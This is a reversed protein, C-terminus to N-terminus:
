NRGSRWWAIFGTLIFILALTAPLGNPGSLEMSIGTIPGAILGGVGYIFAFAANGAVLQSGTFRDGLEAMAMTYLGGAFAGWLFLVPLLLFELNVVFPVFITCTAAVFCCLIMVLRKSTQDAVWGIPIQLFTNGFICVSIAFTVFGATLGYALGYVPFLSLLAADWFAFVAVALLLTPALKLFSMSSAVPEDTSTPTSKRIIFVLLIAVSCFGTGMLFPTLGDVGTLSLTLPGAGFGASLATVYIGIIRGRSRKDALQNIWTESIIFVGADAMGLLLRLVMIATFNKFLGMMFIVSAVIILCIIAVQWSGFRNVIRPFFPSALLVGLPTMAANIGIEFESHGLGELIFSLLPYSLGISLAFITTCAIAGVIGAINGAKHQDSNEIGTEM